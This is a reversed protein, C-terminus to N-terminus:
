PLVGGAAFFMGSLSALAGAAFMIVEDRNLHRDIPDTM